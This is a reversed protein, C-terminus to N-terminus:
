ESIVIYGFYVFSKWKRVVKSLIAVASQPIALRSLQSKCCSGIERVPHAACIVNKGGGLHDERRMSHLAVLGKIQYCM